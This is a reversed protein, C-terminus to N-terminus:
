LRGHCRKAKVGSGCPCPQNRELKIRDQESGLSYVSEVTRSLREVSRRNVPRIRVAPADYFLHDHIEDFIESYTVNLPSPMIPRAVLDQLGCHLIYAGVYDLEDDSFFTMHLRERDMLFARLQRGDWKFYQWAEAISELTLVSVAWPYPNTEKKDLLFSLCTAVPGHNDRTVCVCFARGRVSGSLKLAENGHRDYLVVTEENSVADLLRNAQEYAKQIGTDSRFSRLLRTFAKQPDRFPPDPPSSKGEVFLCIDRGVIVMDHEHQSDPTEFLNRYIKVSEGLINGFSLAAQKELMSSRHKLYADKSGGLLCDESSILIALLMETLNCGFAVENSLRVFPKREVISEDTPYRPHSGEGRGITFLNWFADGKSEHEAVLEARTIRFSALITEMPPPSGDESLASRGAILDDVIKHAIRLSESASIGLKESLVDDFPTVDDVIRNHIQKDTALTIKEFYDIFALTAVEKIKLESMPRPSSHDRNPLNAKSYVQFARQLSKVIEAWDDETLEKPYEPESTAVLLGLLFLIQKAPSQLGRGPPGKGLLCRQVVSKTSCDRVIGQITTIEREIIDLMRQQKDEESTM